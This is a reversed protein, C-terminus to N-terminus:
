FKNFLYQRKKCNQALLTHFQAERLKPSEDASMFHQYTVEWTALPCICHHIHLHPHLVLAAGCGLEEGERGRPWCLLSESSIHGGQSPKTNLPDLTVALERCVLNLIWAEGEGGFETSEATM